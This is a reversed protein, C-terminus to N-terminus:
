SKELVHISKRSESTDLKEIQPSCIILLAKQLSTRNTTAVSALRNSAIVMAYM